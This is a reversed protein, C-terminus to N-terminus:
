ASIQKILKDEVLVNMGGTSTESSGDWLAVNSILVYRPSVDQAPAVSAIAAFMGALIAISVKKM